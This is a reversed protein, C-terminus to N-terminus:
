NDISYSRIIYNKILYKNYITIFKMIYKTINDVFISNRTENAQYYKNINDFDKEIEKIRDVVAYKTYLKRFKNFWYM